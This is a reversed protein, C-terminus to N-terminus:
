QSEDDSTTSAAASSGHEGESDLDSSEEDGVGAAESDSHVYRLTQVPLLSMIERPVALRTMADAIGRLRGMFSDLLGADADSAPASAHAGSEDDSGSSDDDSTDGDDDSSGNASGDSGDDSDEDGEAIDGIVGLLPAVTAAAGGGGTSLSASGTSAGNGHAHRTGLSTMASPVFARSRSAVSSAGSNTRPGGAAPAGLDLSDMGGDGGSSHSHGSTLAPRHAPMSMASFAPSPHVSSSSNDELMPNHGDGDAFKIDLLACIGRVLALDGAEM